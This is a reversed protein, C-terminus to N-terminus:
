MLQLGNFSYHKLEKTQLFKREIRPIELTKNANGPFNLLFKLDIKFVDFFCLTCSLLPSIIASFIISNRSLLYVFDLASKKINLTSGDPNKWQSSFLEGVIYASLIWLVSYETSHFQRSFLYFYIKTPEQARRQSLCSEVKKISERQPQLKLIAQRLCSLISTKNKM